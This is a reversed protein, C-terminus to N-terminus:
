HGQLGPIGQGRTGYMSQACPQLFHDVWVEDLKCLGEVALAQAAEGLSLQGFLHRM